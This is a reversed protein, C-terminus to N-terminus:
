KNKKLNLKYTEVELEDSYDFFGKGFKRDFKGNEQYKMEYPGNDIDFYYLKFPHPNLGEHNTYEEKVLINQSKRILYESHTEIIFEIGYEKNVDHFFKALEGQLAPHLNLEPEEVVVTIYNLNNKHKRLLTAVRLIIMMAQLSGMGKDALHAKLGEKDFVYFEYAEGAYFEIHFDVGVEFENMWYKVFEYEKEGKLIKSQKFDHIAQALNNQKDRLSFLASQKSPNAGLYYVKTNTISKFANSISSKLENKYNDFDVLVQIKEELLELNSKEGQRIIMNKDLSDSVIKEFSEDSIKNHAYDNRLEKIKKLEIENLYILDNIFEEVRSDANIYESFLLPYSINFVEDTENEQYDEVVNDSLKNLKDRLFNYRDLFRIGSLSKNNFDKSKIEKELENMEKILDNLSDFKEVIESNYKVVNLYNEFYNIEIKLKSKFDEILLNSVNANTDDSNGYISTTFLYDDIQMQFSIQEKSSGSKIARGFTVINADELSKNSFSFENYQQNQLYDLFLLFAKVMTSKGSNNRGVIVSIKGLELLPFDQFRRFNSFAIKKM